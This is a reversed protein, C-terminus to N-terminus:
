REINCPWGLDLQPAGGCVLEISAHESKSSRAGQHVFGDTAGIGGEGRRDGGFESRERERQRVCSGLVSVLLLKPNAPL